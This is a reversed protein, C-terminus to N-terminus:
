NPVLTSLCMRILVFISVKVGTASLFHASILFAADGPEERSCQLEVVAVAKGGEAGVQFIPRTDMLYCAARVM